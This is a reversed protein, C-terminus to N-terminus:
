VCRHVRVLERREVKGDEHCGVHEVVEDERGPTEGLACFRDDKAEDHEADDGVEPPEAADCPAHTTRNVIMPSKSPSLDTISIIQKRAPSSIIKRDRTMSYKHNLINMM